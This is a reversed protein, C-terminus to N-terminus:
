EANTAESHHSTRDMELLLHSAERDTLWRSPVCGFPCAMKRVLGWLRCIMPRVPYVTCTGRAQDLMPCVLSENGEPVHGVADCVREWELRSMAIPGCSHQCKGKCVLAPLSAYAADIRRLSRRTQKDPM